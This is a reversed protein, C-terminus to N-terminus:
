RLVLAGLFAVYGLLMVIAEIRGVTRRIMMVLTAMVTLAALVSLDLALERLDGRLRGALGSSGLVLFVNFINSGVVNGVAIDSHGRMAAIISTALEPLSTGIAVITLGIIRDSMGAVQAIGVAGAILLHGGAILVALGIVTLALMRPRSTPVHVGGAAASDAAVVSAADPSGLRSTLIM